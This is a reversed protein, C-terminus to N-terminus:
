GNFECGIRKVAAGHGGGFLVIDEDLSRQLRPRLAVELGLAAALGVAVEQLEVCEQRELCRDLIRGLAVLQEEDDDMLNGLEPQLQEMELEDLRAARDALLAM